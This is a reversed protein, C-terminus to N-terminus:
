CIYTDCQLSPTDKASGGSGRAHVCAAGSRAAFVKIGNVTEDIESPYGQAEQPSLANWESLRPFRALPFDRGSEENPGSQSFCRLRSWETSFCGAWGWGRLLARNRHLVLGPLRCCVSAPAKPIIGPDMVSTIALFLLCLGELAATAIIVSVSPLAPPLPLRNACYM